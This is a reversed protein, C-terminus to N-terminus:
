DKFEISFEQRTNEILLFATLLIHFLEAFKNHFSVISSLMTFNIVFIYPLVLGNHKRSKMFIFKAVNFFHVLFEHVHESKGFFFYYVLFNLEYHRLQVFQVVLLKYVIVYLALIIILRLIELLLLMKEAFVFHTINEWNCRLHLRVEGLVQIILVQHEIGNERKVFSLLVFNVDDGVFCSHNM